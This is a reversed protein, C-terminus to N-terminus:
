SSYQEAKEKLAAMSKNMAPRDSLPWIILRWVFETFPKMHATVIRELLTGDGQARLIFEHRIDDFGIQRVVFAFRTPPQFETIKIENLRKGPIGWSRYQSGIGPPGSTVAEIKLGDNWEIHKMLDSVYAFVDEPKANISVPFTNTVTKM